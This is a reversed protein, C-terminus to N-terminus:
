VSNNKELELLFVKHEMGSAYGVMSGDAGVVRHCPIIIAIPNKNNAGGVARFGKPSDVRQAIDKYTATSGYPIEVLANWVKTQFPTGAPALPLFFEQRKGAFYEELQTKASLLLPTEKKTKLSDPAKLFDGKQGIVLHSLRGDTEVLRLTGLPSDVDMFCMM